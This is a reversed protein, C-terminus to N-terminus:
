EPPTQRKIKEINEEWMKDLAEYVHEATMVSEPDGREERIKHDKKMEYFNLVMSLHSELGGTLKNESLDDPRYAWTKNNEIGYVEVKEDRLDILYYDTKHAHGICFHFKSFPKKQLGKERLKLNKRILVDPDTIFTEALSEFEEIGIVPNNLYKDVLEAPLIINLAQEIKKIDETTM